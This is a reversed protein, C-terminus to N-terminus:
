CYLMMTVKVSYGFEVYWDYVYIKWQGDICDSITYSFVYIHDYKVMFEVRLSGTCKIKQARAMVARSFWIGGIKIFEIHSNM